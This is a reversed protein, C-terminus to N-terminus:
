RPVSHRSRRKLRRNLRRSLRWSLIDRVDLKLARAASRRVFEADYELPARVGTIRIMRGEETWRRGIRWGRSGIRQGLGM